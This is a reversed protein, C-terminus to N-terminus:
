SSRRRRSDATSVARFNLNIKSLDLMIQCVTLYPIFIDVSNTTHDSFNM